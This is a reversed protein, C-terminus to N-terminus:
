ALFRGDGVEDVAPVGDTVEDLDRFHSGVIYGLHEKAQQAALEDAASNRGHDDLIAPRSEIVSLINRRVHSECSSWGRGRPSPQPSPVASCTSGHQSRSWLVTMVEAEPKLFFKVRM